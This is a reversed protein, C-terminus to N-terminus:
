GRPEYLRVITGLTVPTSQGPTQWCARIHFDYFGPRTVGDTNDTASRVAQIWIGQAIVNPLDYRIRAYTPQEEAPDNSPNYDSVNRVPITPDEVAGNSNLGLKTLNLAFPKESDAPLHCKGRNENPMALGCNTNGIVADFCQAKDVAHDAVVMKWIETAVGNKGYDAVYAKNLYRLADAQADIQQRVHGIELSRQAMATGQSMLSMGGIAVLSFVTIAFLVEIITDGRQHRNVRM